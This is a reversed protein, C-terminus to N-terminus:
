RDALVQEIASAASPVLSMPYLSKGDVVTLVLRDQELALALVRSIAETVPVALMTGGRSLEWGEDFGLTKVLAQYDDAPEYAMPIAWGGVGEELNFTHIQGILLRAGDSRRFPALSIWYGSQDNFDVAATPLELLPLTGYGEVDHPRFHSDDLTLAGAKSLQDM